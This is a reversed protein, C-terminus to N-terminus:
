WSLLKEKYQSKFFIGSVIDQLAVSNLELIVLIKWQLHQTFKANAFNLIQSDIQLKKSCWDLAIVNIPLLACVYWVM